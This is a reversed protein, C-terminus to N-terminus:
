TYLLPLLSYRIKLTSRAAEEVVKGMAVPDQERTGLPEFIYFKVVLKRLFNEHLTELFGFNQRFGVFKPPFKVM